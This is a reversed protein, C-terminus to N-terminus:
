YVGPMLKAVRERYRLYDPFQAALWVEERRSKADFFGVAGLAVIVRTLRGTALAGGLLLFIVGTYIPHRVVGYAGDQVLVSHPRPKPLPTLNGGLQWAAYGLLGAGAVGTAAGVVVGARRAMPTWPRGWSPAVAYLVFLLGQGAVWAEGRNDRRETM